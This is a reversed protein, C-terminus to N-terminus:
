RGGSRLATECIAACFFEAFSLSNAQLLFCVVSWYFLAILHDGLMSLVPPHGVIRPLIKTCYFVSIVVQLPCPTLRSCFVCLQCRKSSPIAYTYFCTQLCLHLLIFLIDAGFEVGLGLPNCLLLLTSALFILSM